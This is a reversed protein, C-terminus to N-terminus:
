TSLSETNLVFQLTCQTATFGLRGKTERKTVRQAMKSFLIKRVMEKDDELAAHLICDANMM